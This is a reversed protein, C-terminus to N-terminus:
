REDEEDVNEIVESFLKGLVGGTHFGLALVGAFPGLGVALIFILAWFVEPISRLLNLALTSSWYLMAHLLHLFSIAHGEGLAHAGGPLTRSSAIGLPLAILLALVTGMLSVAVTEVGGWLSRRLFEGSLDPPFWSRLFSGIQFWADSRFFIRLDSGTGVASWGILGLIGAVLLWSYIRQPQRRPPPSLVPGPARIISIDRSM